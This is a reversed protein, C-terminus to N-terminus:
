ALRGQNGILAMQNALQNRVVNAPQQTTIKIDTNFNNVAGQDAKDPEAFKSRKSSNILDQDDQPLSNFREKMKQEELLKDNTADIPNQGSKMGKLFRKMEDAEDPNLGFGSFAGKTENPKSSKTSFPNISFDQIEQRISELGTLVDSFFATAGDFFAVAGKGIAVLDVWGSTADKILEAIVSLLDAFGLKKPDQGPFFIKQIASPAGTLFDFIDKSAIGFWKIGFSLAKDLKNILPALSGGGIANWFTRIVQAVASGTNTLNARTNSALLEGFIEGLVKVIPRGFTRKLENFRNKLQQSRFGFTKNGLTTVNELQKELVALGKSIREEEKLGRLQPALDKLTEELSGVALLQGIQRAIIGPDKDPRIVGFKAVIEAVRALKKIPIVTGQFAKALGVIDVGFKSGLRDITKLFSDVAGGKGQVRFSQKLTERVSEEEQALGFSSTAFGRIGQAARGLLNSLQIGAAIEIVRLLSSGIGKIARGVMKLASFAGRLGFTLGTMIPGGLRKLLSGTNKAAMGLGGLSDSFRNTKTTAKQASEGTQDTKKEFNTLDKIATKAGILGIQIFLQKLVNAKGAL